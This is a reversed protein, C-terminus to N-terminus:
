SRRRKRAPRRARAKGRKPAKPRRPLSGVAVALVRPLTPWRWVREALEKSSEPKLLQLLWTAVFILFWGAIPRLERVEGLHTLWPGLELGEFLLLKRWAIAFTESAIDEADALSATRRAAYALVARQHESFLADFRALPPGDHARETTM